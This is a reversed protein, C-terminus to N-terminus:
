RIITTKTRSTEGCLCCFIWVIIWPPFLISILCHLWCPIWFRGRKKEVVLTGAQSHAPGANVIVTSPQPAILPAQAHYASTVPPNAQYVVTQPAVTQPLPQYVTNTNAAAMIVPQSAAQRPLEVPANLTVNISSFSASPLPPRVVPHIPPLPSPPRPHPHPPLHYANYIVPPPPPPHPHGLPPRHPPLPSPPRHFAPGPPVSAYNYPPPKEAAIHPVPSKHMPGAGRGPPPM